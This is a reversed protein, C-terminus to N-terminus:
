PWRARLRREDSPTLPFFHASDSAFVAPRCSAPRGCMLTTSDLNHALGIVHGIEHATVNRMTNPLSLPLIDSRRLAAIGPRDARWPTGFSILGTDSLAIVIDGPVSGLRARLRNTAPGRGFMAERSAEALMGDPLSRPRITGSDLQVRRGLRRLETNWHAIAERVPVLRPDGPRGLITVALRPESASRGLTAADVRGSDRCAVAWPLLALLARLCAAM